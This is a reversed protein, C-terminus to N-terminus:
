FYHKVKSNPVHIHMRWGSICIYHLSPFHPYYDHISPFCRSSWILYNTSSASPLWHPTSNCLSLCLPLEAHDMRLGRWFPWLSNYWCKTGVRGRIGGKRKRRTLNSQRATGMVGTTLLIESLVDPGPWRSCNRGPGWGEKTKKNCGFLLSSVGVYFASVM